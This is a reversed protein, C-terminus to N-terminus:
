GGEPASEGGGADSATVSRGPPAPPRWLVTTAGCCTTGRRYRKGCGVACIWPRADPTPTQISFGSAALERALARLDVVPDDSAAVAEILPEFTELREDFAAQDAQQRAKWACDCAFGGYRAEKDAEPCGPQHNWGMTM